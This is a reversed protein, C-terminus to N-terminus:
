GGVPAKFTYNDAFAIFFLNYSHSISFKMLESEFM